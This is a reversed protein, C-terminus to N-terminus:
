TCIGPRVNTLTLTVPRSDSSSVEVTLGAPKELVQLIAEPKSQRVSRLSAHGITRACFVLEGACLDRDKSDGATRGGRRVAGARVVMVGRAAGDIRDVRHHTCNKGHSDENHFRSSINGAAPPNQRAQKPWRRWRREHRRRVLRLRIVLPAPAPATGAVFVHRCRRPRTHVSWDSRCSTAPAASKPPTRGTVRAVSEDGPRLVRNLRQEGESLRDEDRMPRSRFLETLRSRARHLRMKVAAVSSRTVIAIENLSLEGAARLLLVERDASRLRRMTAM